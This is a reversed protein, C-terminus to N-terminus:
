DLRRILTRLDELHAQATGLLDRLRITETKLAENEKSLEEIRRVEPLAPRERKELPFAPENRTKLAAFLAKGTPASLDVEVRAPALDIISEVVGGIQEERAAKELTIIVVPDSM